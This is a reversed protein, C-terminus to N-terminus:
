IGKIGCKCPLPGRNWWGGGLSQFLAATDTYRAAQAQIRAIRTQQYQRQANLLALYDVGGLRMQARTLDLSGKAAIEAQTEDRLAVADIQVARLSDAVNQFGQLVTQRYQDYAQCYAAIAGKRQAILAGGHFIPQAVQGILTAVVADPTFLDRPINAEVGYSATLPFQPLLNATAVGIQASAQHLLAEAARVDPRQRVLLSPMSIPLETPLHLKNLDICPLQSESPLDGVLVALAHHTQELNKELPPLTAQLQALQTEQALVDVMSTGGLRLQQRVINVESAQAAILQHTAEIQARLSAETIATTVINATLTLYTAELEFNSNDMLASVAEAQRRLGGFVDLTYSVNVSTNYLNFVQGPAREVGLTTASFREREATAQADITPLLTSGIQAVLNEQAQRLAAQGAKLTPSNALGRCILENLEPSRFLTWWQAPINQCPLFHQAAGGPGPSSVTHLPLYCATYSQTHPLAPPHFNPGVACGTLTASLLLAITRFRLQVM